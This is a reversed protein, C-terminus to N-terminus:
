FPPRYAASSFAQIASSGVPLEQQQQQQAMLMLLM